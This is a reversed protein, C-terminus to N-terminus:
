PAMWIGGDIGITSGTVSAFTGDDGSTNAADFAFESAIRAVDAVTPGRQLSPRPLGKRVRASPSVWDHPDGPAECLLDPTVLLTNLTIGEGIRGWNRAAVKLVSRQADASAAWASAGSPGGLLTLTPALLLVSGREGDLYDFYGQLFAVFERIPTEALAEWRSEDLDMLETFASAGEPASAWIAGACRIGEDPTTFSERWSERNSRNCGVHRHVDQDISPNDSVLIVRAAYSAQLVTALAGGAGGAEGVVAINHALRSDDM